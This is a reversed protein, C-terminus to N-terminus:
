HPTAKGGKKAERYGAKLADAETLWQGKKTKGYWPDGARHFIKTEPNAWVLGPSPPTQATIQSAPTPPVRPKAAPAAPAPAPVQAPAATKPPMATAASATVLPGIKQITSAPIGAKSLDATSNYPRNAIIKKATVAGVGPLKELDAQSGTNLDVPASAAATKASAAKPAAAAPAVALLVLAMVCFLRIWVMRSLM